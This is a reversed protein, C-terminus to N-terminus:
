FDPCMYLFSKIVKKFFIHMVPGSTIIGFDQSGIFRLLVIAAKSFM